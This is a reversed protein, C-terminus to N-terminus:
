KLRLADLNKMAITEMGYRKHLGIALDICKSEEGHCTIIREPKPNMSGIFQILQRRDSHGSFGDITEVNMDISIKIPHGHESMTIEKLGNQVKRGLTREAQYGVFVLTNRPDDAWHKFYELVPGGNMMGSTSLVIVPESSSIVSERREPAEVRHFVESLFPNEKKQFILERLDKNLYEPYAAHITTAEWIMGDLYIPITPLEESRMYSELVLMVEQSRGVAFVPILVKGGKEFTRQVVDKLREAAERRPPQFDERGGYTSEMIVTEVRPFKNHAPNFLWSREYKIDGSIVVNYFGDGIHFHSVASGLIHGANHFTLRVDPSIDTTVGYKLTITHKIMEKIHKSEFPVKRGEAQAVKLYDILLMVALDRTPPTMFVPGDYNHKFLMPVLGVHDLHAHTVVVADLYKLPKEPDTNDWVEPMYLYPTGSWPEDSDSASVNLGCDVLIRSTKTMLLTSSRGVERYGGLAVVRVWQEGSRPPRNLRRGINRLIERRDDRVIKLYERMEKVIRSKLPPARVVRPAWKVEKKIKNLLEGEKGIVIGPAEAEIIVEGTEPIFYVDKVGAEEPIIQNIKERAENEPLLTKPDPRISIRRRVAHAIKKIVDPNEAFFEMDMTYVVVLPGELDIDTIEAKPAYENLLEQTKTLIDEWPM